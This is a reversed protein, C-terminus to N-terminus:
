EHPGAAEVGGVLSAEGQDLHDDRHDHREEHDPGGRGAEGAVAVAGVGGLELGLQQSDGLLLDLLDVRDDRM